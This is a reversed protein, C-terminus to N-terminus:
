INAFITNNQKQNIPNRISHQIPTIMDYQALTKAETPHCPNEEEHAARQHSNKEKCPDSGYCTVCMEQLATPWGAAGWRFTLASQTKPKTNKKEEFTHFRCTYGNPKINVSFQTVVFELRDRIQAWVSPVEATQNQSYSVIDYTFSMTRVWCSLKSRMWQLSNQAPVIQKVPWHTHKHWM